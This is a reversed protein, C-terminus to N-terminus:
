ELDVELGVGKGKVNRESSLIENQSIGLGQEQGRNRIRDEDKERGGRRRDEKEEEKGKYQIKKCRM